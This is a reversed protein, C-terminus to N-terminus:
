NKLYCMEQISNLICMLFEHADQQHKGKFVSSVNQMATLFKNTQFADPLNIVESTHLFAYLDHLEEIAIQHNSRPADTFDTTQEGVLHHLNNLFNPAFRLTYLVSNLYCTNGINCLTAIENNDHLRPRKKFVPLEYPYKRRNEAAVFARTNPRRSAQTAQDNPTIEPEAISASGTTCGGYSKELNSNMKLLLM